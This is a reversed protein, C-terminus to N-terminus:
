FGLVEREEHTLKALAQKKLEDRYSKTSEEHNEFIIHREVDGNGYGMVGRGKADKLADEKNFFMNKLLPVGRGEMPDSNQYVGWAEIM